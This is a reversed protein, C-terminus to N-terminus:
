RYLKWAATTEAPFQSYWVDNLYYTSSGTYYAGGLIWMKRDFVVVPFSYRPTWPARGHALVQRWNAGDSSSWVENTSQFWPPPMVGGMVWIKRDCVVAAHGLLSNLFPGSAVTWNAGDSSYSANYYPNGAIVWIKGDFVVVAKSDVGATWPGHGALTWTTANTSYWVDSLDKTGDFGGILWIKGGYVVSAHGSRRGWPANATARTWTTGNTSYWVNAGPDASIGGILWMKGAYVVCTHGYRYTARIGPPPIVCTWHTGDTTNWVDGIDQGGILWIKGSYSVATHGWRPSWPASATARVWDRGPEASPAPCFAGILLLLLGMSQIQGVM